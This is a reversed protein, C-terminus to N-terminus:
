VNGYSGEGYDQDRGFYRSNNSINGRKIQNLAQSDEIIGDRTQVQPNLKLVKPVSVLLAKMMANWVLEAMTEKSHIM